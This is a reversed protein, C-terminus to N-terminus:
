QSDEEAPVEDELAPLENDLTLFQEADDAPELAPMDSDPAEEDVAPMDGTEAETVATGELLSEPGTTRQSSLYALTLSSAFFATALIATARSFFSGSGRAGFVTGSAGAGFAAGADAGKGRQLLVLAIIALAILTHVILAIKQM